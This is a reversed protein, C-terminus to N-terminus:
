RWLHRIKKLRWTSNGLSVIFDGVKVGRTRGSRPLGLFIPLGDVITIGLLPTSQAPNREILSIGTHGDSFTVSYYWVCNLVSDTMKFAQTFSLLRFLDWFRLSTSLIIINCSLFVRRNFAIYCIFCTYLLFYM